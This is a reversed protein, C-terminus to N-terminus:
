RWDMEDMTVCFVFFLIVYIFGVIFTVEDTAFISVIAPVWIISFMFIVIAINRTFIRIFEM